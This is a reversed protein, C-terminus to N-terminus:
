DRSDIDRAIAPLDHRASVERLFQGDFGHTRDVLYLPRRKVESFVRGIYEGLIGISILQIGSFFLVVVFTSAYGPVDVGFVLTSVVKLAAFGLGLAALLFGVYSWIRLPLSSFSTIGDLAFNWLKWLSFSTKGAPRGPRDYEVTAYNFGVTAFLGKMFRAREGYHEIATIVRRSMLRFDGAQPLMKTDTIKQAVWYFLTATTRKLFGDENRTRRVPIVIDLQEDDLWRQYLEEILEPPDQLDGDMSIVVDAETHHLGATLASEKGFNRSLSLIRVTFRASAAAELLKELTSDTSGDNVCIVTVEAALSDVLQELRTFLESVVAQENYFPIVIDMSPKKNM